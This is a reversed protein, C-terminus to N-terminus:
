NLSRAGALRWTGRIDMTALKTAHGLNNTKATTNSVCLGGYQVRELILKFRRGHRRISNQRRVGFGAMDRAVSPVFTM